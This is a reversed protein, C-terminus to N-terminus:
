SKNYPYKAAKDDDTATPSVKLFNVELIVAVAVPLFNSKSLKSTEADALPLALKQLVSQM